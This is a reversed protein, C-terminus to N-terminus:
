RAARASNRRYYGPAIESLVALSWGLVGPHYDGPYYEELGGLHYWLHQTMPEWRAAIYYTLLAADQSKSVLGKLRDVFTELEWTLDVVDDVYREGIVQPCDARLAQLLRPALSQNLCALDGTPLSNWLDDRTAVRQEIEKCLVSRQYAKTFLNGYRKLEKADKWTREVDNFVGGPTEAPSALARVAELHDEAASCLRTLYRSLKAAEFSTAGLSLLRSELSDQAPLAFRDTVDSSM